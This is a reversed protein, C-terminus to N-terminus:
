AHFLQAAPHVPPTWTQSMAGDGERRSCSATAAAKAAAHAATSSANGGSSAGGGDRAPKSAASASRPADSRFSAHVIGPALGSNSCRKSPPAMLSALLFSPGGKGPSSNKHLPEAPPPPTVDAARERGPPPSAAYATMPAASLACSLARDRKGRTTFAASCRFYAASRRVHRAQKASQPTDQPSSRCASTISSNVLAFSMEGDYMM